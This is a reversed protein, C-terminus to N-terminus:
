HEGYPTESDNERIAKSIEDLLEDSERECDHTSIYGPYEEYKIKKLDQGSIRPQWEGLTNHLPFLKLHLHNIGFGEFVAGVRSSNKFTKVLLSSARKGAKMLESIDDDHNDFVYSPLHKKPIVVTVGKTNPFISLFALHTKSEWIKHAPSNGKAIECFICKEM